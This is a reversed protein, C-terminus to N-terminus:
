HLINNIPVECKEDEKNDKLNGDSQDDCKTM